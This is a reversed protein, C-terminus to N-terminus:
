PQVRVWLGEVRVVVPEGCHFRHYTLCGSQGPDTGFRSRLESARLFHSAIHADPCFEQGPSIVLDECPKGIGFSNRPIRIPLAGPHRKIFDEDLQIKDVFEVRAIAGSYTRISDRVRLAAIQLDGFVTGVRAWSGFGPLNWDVPRAQVQPSPKPGPLRSLANRIRGLGVADLDIDTLAMISALGWTTIPAM